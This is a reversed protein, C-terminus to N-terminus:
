KSTNALLRKYLITSGEKFKNKESFAKLYTWGLSTSCKCCRVDQVEYDGTALHTVTVKGIREVNFTAAFLMGSENNRGMKCDSWVVAKASAIDLGCAKCGYKPLTDIQQYTEQPAVAAQRVRVELAAKDKMLAAIKAELENKITESDALKTSLQQKDATEVQLQAVLNVANAKTADLEGKLLGQAMKLAAVEHQVKNAQTTTLREKTPNIAEEAPKEKLDVWDNHVGTQSNAPVNEDSKALIHISSNPTMKADALDEWEDDQMSDQLDSDARILESEEDAIDGAPEFSSGTLSSSPDSSSTNSELVGVSEEESKKGGPGTIKSLAATTSPGSWIGLRVM